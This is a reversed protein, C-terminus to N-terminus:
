SALPGVMSAKSGTWNAMVWGFYFLHSLFVHLAASALMFTIRVGARARIVLLIWLSTTAIHMLTQFWYKKLLLKIVGLTSMERLQEWTEIRIGLTYVVLAILVLGLLRRVVRRYAATAGHTRIRRVFTLRFAFGVAFLFQPMITDAYSCFTNHHKLLYHTAEFGGVFNVLFMGLVTYGRFQDLSVLRQGTPSANSM